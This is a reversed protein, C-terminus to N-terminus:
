SDMLILLSKNLKPDRIHHIKRLVIQGTPSNNRQGISIVTKSLIESQGVTNWYRSSKWNPSRLM